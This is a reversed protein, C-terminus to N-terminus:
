QQRKARPAANSRVMVIGVFSGIIGMTLLLIMVPIRIAWERPPFLSQFPHTTDVFPMILTWITYYLFALTSFIFIGHGM